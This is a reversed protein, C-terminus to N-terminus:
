CRSLASVHLERRGLCRRCLPEALIGADMLRRVRRMRVGSWIADIGQDFVNGLAIEGNFDLTCFTCSGDWLVVFMRQPCRFRCAGRAAEILPAPGPRLENAFNCARKFVLSVNESLEFYVGPDNDPRKLVSSWREAEDADACPGIVGRQKELDRVLSSWFGVNREVEDRTEVLRCRDIEAGRTNLLQIEIRPLPAGRRFREELLGRVNAAIQEYAYRSRTQRYLAASPANVSLVVTQVGSDLLRRAADRDLRSANTV